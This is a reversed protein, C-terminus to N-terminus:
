LCFRYILIIIDLEWGVCVEKPTFKVTIHSIFSDWWDIKNTSKSKITNITSTIWLFLANEGHTLSHQHPVSSITHINHM